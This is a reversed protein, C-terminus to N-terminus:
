KNESIIDKVALQLQNRISGIGYGRLNYKMEEITYCIDFPSNSKIYEYHEKQDFAIGNLINASSDDIMELKIHKGDKGVLKSDQYDRVDHTAFVPKPNGPGFPALEMIQKHLELTIDKFTLIADIDIQPVTQRKEINEKVYAEFREIFIPIKEEKLSLGAAYTHGGFSELLDRCSEIAKYVDFGQVSRASGTVIGNSFALVVAPKYYIETLRSAVIGIIGRKWSRNYIVISKQEEFNEKKSLIENAEETITKDLAKREENYQNINKSREKAAEFDTSLLLDVAEKGQEMRGSANIRPGIKFVIDSTNIQKNQLGCINIIGKLGHSPKENLRKLGHYALIRNEGIIPVIDSAISLAVFDLLPYLSSEDIGNDKAFGQMFKFGVGCGSLESFPYNSNELKPNLIATANPLENDPVHHDCIIFDIGKSKAYEVKDIAKIGCDLTIILKIDKDYAYDICKKSIGYGEEYRDPIYYEINFCYPKLYKYVLAVATTGDVDYDGFILIGEKQGIAYNLRDVAERMGDMLYPDHLDSLQPSFFKQAEEKNKVGRRVLLECIVSSAGIDSQLSEKIQEQEKTLPLYNWKSTM